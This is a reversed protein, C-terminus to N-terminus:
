FPAFVKERGAAKALDQLLLKEDRSLLGCIATIRSYAMVYEKYAIYGPKGVAVQRWNENPIIPIVIETVKQKGAPKGPRASWTKSTGVRVMFGKIDEKKCDKSEKKMCDIDGVEVLQGLYYQGKDEAFIIGYKKQGQDVEQSYSKILDKARETKQLFSDLEAFLRITNNYYTFLRDVVIGEMMAYNTQFLQEQQKKAKETASLDTSRVASSSLIENLDAFLKEDYLVKGKFRVQNQNFTETVKKNNEAMKTVEEQIQKADDIGKNFLIRAGYIRGYAWGVGLPIVATIILAIILKAHSKKEQPIELPPGADVIPQHRPYIPAPAQPAFPDRRPDPAGHQAHSFPSPMGLPPIVTPPPIM